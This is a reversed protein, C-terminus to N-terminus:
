RLICENSCIVSWIASQSYQSAGPINLLHKEESPPGFQFAPHIYDEAVYVDVELLGSFMLM